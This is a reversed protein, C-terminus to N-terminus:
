GQAVSRRGPGRWAHVAYRPHLRRLRSRGFGLRVEGSPRHTCGRHRARCWLSGGRPLARVHRRAASCLRLVHPRRSGARVRHQPRCLHGGRLAPCGVGPGELCRAEEGHGDVEGADSPRCRSRLDTGSPHAYQQWRAEGDGRARLRRFQSPRRLGRPRPGRPPEAFLALVPNQPLQRDLTEGDRDPRDENPSHAGALGLRRGVGAM